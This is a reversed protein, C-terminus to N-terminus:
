LAVAFLGKAEKGGGAGRQPPLDNRRDYIICLSM